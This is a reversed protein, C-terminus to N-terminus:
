FNHHKLINELKEMTAVSSAGTNVKLQNLFAVALCISLMTANTAYSCPGM